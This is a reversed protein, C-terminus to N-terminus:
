NCIIEEIAQLSTPDVCPDAGEQQRDIGAALDGGLINVIQRPGVLVVIDATQSVLLGRGMYVGHRGPSM